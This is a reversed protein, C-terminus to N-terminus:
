HGSVASLNEHLFSGAKEFNNQAKTFPNTGTVIWRAILPLDALAFDEPIRQGLSLYSISLRRDLVDSAIAGVSGSDDTHTIAVASFQAREFREFTARCAEASLWAPVVLHKEISAERAFYTYFWDYDDVESAGAGATDVLVLTSDSSAAIAAQIAGPSTASECPVGLIAAHRRLSDSGAIRDTDTTIFRIPRHRLLGEEIAIKTLLTTKGVGAPGIAAIVRRTASNPGRNMALHRSVSEMARSEMEDFTMRHDSPRYGALVEEAIDQCWGASLGSALLRDLLLKSAGESQIVPTSWRQSQEYSRVLRDLEARMQAMERALQSAPPNAEAEPEPPEAPVTAFVVEYDGLHRTDPTSKKSTVLMADSGLERRALDVASEVSTAFYSKLRM